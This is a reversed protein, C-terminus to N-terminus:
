RGEGGEQRAELVRQLLTNRLSVSEIKLALDGKLSPATEVAERLQALWDRYMAVADNHRAINSEVVGELDPDGGVKAREAIANELEQGRSDIAGVVFAEFNAVIERSVIIRRSSREGQRGANKAQSLTERSVSVATGSKVAELFTAFNVIRLPVDVRRRVEEVLEERPGLSFNLRKNIWDEKEDNSVILVPKRVEVAKVLAQEWWLYDGHPNTRKARDKYGPPIRHEKRRAAEAHAKENDSESLPQGVRGDLLEALAELVPDNNLVRGITLDFVGQHSKVRGIATRFADELPVKLARKEAEDLASRNAFENLQQLAQNQATELSKCTEDYFAVQDRAAEIRNRHFELAVQHPIWINEKATILSEIMEGRATPTVRYLDLLVSSDIVVLSNKLAQSLGKNSM